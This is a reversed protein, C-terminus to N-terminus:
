ILGKKRMKLLKKILKAHEEQPSRHYRATGYQLKLCRRCGFSNSGPLRYLVGVRRNCKPCFFWYRAGGNGTKSSTLRIDNGLGELEIKLLEEKLRSKVERMLVNINVAQCEEIIFKAYQIPKLNNNKMSPKSDNSMM